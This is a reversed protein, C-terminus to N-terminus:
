CGRRAIGVGVASEEVIGSVGDVRACVVTVTAIFVIEAERSFEIGSGVIKAHIGSGLAVGCTGIKEAQPSKLIGCREIGTFKHSRESSEAFDIEVPNVNRIGAPEEEVRGTGGIGVPGKVVVRSIDLEGSRIIAVVSGPIIKEEGSGNRRPGIIELYFCRAGECGSPFGTVITQYEPVARARDREGGGPPRVMSEARGTIEIEEGKGSGSARHGELGVAGGVGVAGEVIRRATDFDRSRVIAIVALSIIKEDAFGEIRSIVIEDDTSLISRKRGSSVSEIRGERRTM